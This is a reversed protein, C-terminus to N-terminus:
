GHEEGNRQAATGGPRRPVVAHQRTAPDPRIRQTEISASDRTAEPLGTDAYDPQDDRRMQRLVIGAILAAIGALGGVLPITTQLLPIDRVGPQDAQVTSRVSQPTLIMDANFLLLRQTGAADDLALKQDQSLDLLGGTLPDVWFTNTATYYEPLSVVADGKM